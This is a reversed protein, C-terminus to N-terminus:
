GETVGNVTISDTRKLSGLSLYMGTHEEFVRALDEAYVGHAVSVLTNKKVSVYRFEVDHLDEETLTVKCYNIRKANRGVRFPLGDGCDIFTNANTMLRLRSFGGLQDAITAVVTVASRENKGTM